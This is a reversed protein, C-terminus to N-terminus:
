VIANDAPSGVRRCHSGGQFGLLLLVCEPAGVRLCLPRRRRPPSPRRGSAQSM